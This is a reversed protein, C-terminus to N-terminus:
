GNLIAPEMGYDWSSDTSFLEKEELKVKKNKSDHTVERLENMSDYDTILRTTGWMERMYSTDRDTM